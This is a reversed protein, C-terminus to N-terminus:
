TNSLGEQKVLSHAVDIRFGDVGRDFWFRLTEEFDSWVDPHEWNVDPQEPASCTLYWEGPSGDPETVRKGVGARGFVSQWSNPPQDGDAGRGPRFM